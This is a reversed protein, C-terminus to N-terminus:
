FIIQKETEQKKKKKKQPPTPTYMPIIKNLM